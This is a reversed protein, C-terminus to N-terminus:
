EKCGNECLNFVAPFILTDDNSGGTLFASVKDAGCQPCPCVQTYLGFNWGRVHGEVCKFGRRTANTKSADGSISGYLKSM